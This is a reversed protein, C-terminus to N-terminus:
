VSKKVLEGAKLSLVPRDSMGDSQVLSFYSNSQNGHSKTFVNITGRPNLRSVKRM